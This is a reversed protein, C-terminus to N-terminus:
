IRTLIEPGNDTIAVTHEFHASLKRDLTVVTWGDKLVEVKELGENIMPELALVMGPKLRLGRGAPGYNPVQPDEHPKTGIGHGVFERVVSFGNQEAHTQCAYGIDSVRNGAVAQQVELYLCEETVKMLKKAAESAGGIAITVAADGYYGEKEVGYDLGIIDGEVLVEDRRPIGHVVRNNVSTCLCAPFGLYGKFAPRGGLKKTTQEAIADLDATTVGPKAAAVLAALTEAVIKSADRIREIERASRLAVM